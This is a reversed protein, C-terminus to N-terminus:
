TYYSGDWPEYLAITSSPELEISPNEEDETNPVLGFVIGDITVQFLKVEIDSYQVEGLDDVWQELKESSAQANSEAATGLFESRIELHNGQGDFLHLMVYDRRYNQWGERGMTGVPFFFTEYGWFLRNESCLGLYHTHYEEIREIPLKEPFDM